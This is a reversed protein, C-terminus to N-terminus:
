NSTPWSSLLHKGVTRSGDAHIELARLLYDRTDRPAIVSHVGFVGALAYASTEKTMEQAVLASSSEGRADAPQLVGAAAAPDMFSVDASWWAASADSLGGGGMNIYAQGYSKRLVVMIRPVTVLSLANMWNIVKGVIGRREAELGVLFGPQDVLSILPINFSDCLVLFDIAKDCADADLAGGKFFPNNAIVGVSRGGVRALTTALSRGFRPKLELSSDRDVVAEIVKRVDYVRSRANPVVGALAEAADGPGAPVPSTPPPQGQHSPLYGLFRQVMSIAHEDSEAVADALGTVESHLRWGGVDEPDVQEGTASRILRPSSVAMVSAKRMVCFDSAAAHWAASGFASGLVASVWPSERRRLFRTRGDLTAMGQAGMVDPMRAGTSECLFVIPTGNERAKEKMYGVKREGITGSSSGKVTFDYAVVAVNRGDIRGFGTVKGDAPTRERDAPNDSVAFLGVEEWSEPDLLRDVRQRASFIGAEARAAIKAAGGMALAHTRRREHEISRSHESVPEDSRAM